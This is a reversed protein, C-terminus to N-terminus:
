CLHEIDGLLCIAFRSESRNLTVGDNGERKLFDGTGRRSM